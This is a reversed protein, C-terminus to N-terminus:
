FIIKLGFQLQRSSSATYTLLGANANLNGSANFVQQNASTPDAFNARNFINFAEFRFQINFADSVRPIYNNKFWSMDFEVLGPGYVSNRGSNGLLEIPNPVSFCSTNLYHINQTNTATGCGAGKTRNPFDFTVASNLGLPDGGIIPTFPLGSSATFIGGYQWGNLLWHGFSNSLDPGPIKWIYNITVVQPVDFDSVARRLRPDFFPLASISNGFTDGSISASGLDISKSWTYSGQIQLGHSMRKVVEVNLANYSSVGNWFLASIQGVAPNMKTGSGHPIPWLYGSPTLTPLVYNVDDAHFPQHVGRSGLYGVTMTLNRALERQVNGNWQVVYNRKPNSQVYGYRLASPALILPYGGTPFTGPVLGNAVTANGSEFFPASLVSILEFEYPLPLVDYMGFAGRVATKGDHFPDWSFGVRPEFNRLTPNSYLPSGLNPLPSTLSPLNTLRNATETPVTDMEYRVGVNITLNPRLRIDDQVYAGFITQRLDRPTILGGIPSNFSTPIDTLFNQLSGFIYQGNPNATGLQNSQIREVAVGFRIAHIGRTIFADDYFQFSNYHFNYQGVAGIGGAFNSLGSVNILGVPLGPVFGFTPDDAAPLVAAITTPADSVYRSFGFRAANVFNPSFVHTEEIGAGQHRTISGRVTVDFNDPQTINSKDFTYTGFISDARSFTHDVRTTFFNENTIQPGVFSFTGTDGTVTGNPHPYFQLFPAVLPSVTIPGSVLDGNRANDSLTTSQQTVGLNQALGEYDAFFFTNDKVIPGGVSGGYQNRRFSPIQSPDFYNRADLVSNRLFEYADGHFANSGSRTVANIIGGSTRGYEAPANSTIVSFEQIADVGLTGGLVNSPAGNTYDVVSIGDIRYNNQQPRNGGITLQTGNGRNARQNSIAVVPQTRVVAVSPELTALSTWDRGNLPLETVTVSNAIGSVSSDALEVGSVTGTVEVTQSIGGLKLAFNVAQVAGVTLDVHEAVSKQFGMATITVTYDGPILNPVSFLGANNTTVSKTIATARHTVDVKANPVFGGDPDTVTGQITGGAVQARAVFTVISLLLSVLVGGTFVRRLVRSRLIITM